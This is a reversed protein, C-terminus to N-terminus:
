DHNDGDPSTAPLVSSRPRAAVPHVELKDAADKVADKVNEKVDGYTAQTKGSVQDLVGEQKLTENGTVNGAVEKVKGKVQDIRGEVQDKNM